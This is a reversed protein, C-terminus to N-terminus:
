KWNKAITKREWESGTNIEHASYTCYLLLDKKIFLSYKPIKPDLNRTAYLRHIYTAIHVHCPHSRSFHEFRHQTSKINRQASFLKKGWVFPIKNQNWTAYTTFIHLLYVCMSYITKPFISYVIDTHIDNNNTIAIANQFIDLNFHVFALKRIISIYM